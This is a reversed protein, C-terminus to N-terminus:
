ERSEFRKGDKHLGWQDDPCHVFGQRAQPCHVTGQWSGLHGQGHLCADAWARVFAPLPELSQRRGQMNDTGGERAAHVRQGRLVTLFKMRADWYRCCCCEGNVTCHDCVINLCLTCDRTAPGYDIGEHLCPMKNKCRFGAATPYWVGSCRCVGYANAAGGDPPSTASPEEAAGGDPPSAASPEEDTYGLCVMDALTDPVTDADASARAEHLEGLSDAAAAVPTPSPPPPTDAAVTDADASARGELLEGLSDAAVPTPSPPPPPDQQLSPELDLDESQLRLLRRFKPRSEGM